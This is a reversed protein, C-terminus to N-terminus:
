HKLLLNVAMSNGWPFLDWLPAGAKLLYEVLTLCLSFTGWHTGRAQTHSVCEMPNCFGAHVAGRWVWTYSWSVHVGCGAEELFGEGAGRLWTPRQRIWHRLCKDKNSLGGHDSDCWKTKRKRLTLNEKRGLFVWLGGFRSIHSRTLICSGWDLGSWGGWQISSFVLM